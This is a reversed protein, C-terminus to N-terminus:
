PLTLSGSNQWHTLRGQNDFVNVYVNRSGSFNTFSLPVSVTAQAGSVTRTVQAANFSCRSNALLQNAGITVFGGSVLANELRQDFSSRWKASRLGRSM